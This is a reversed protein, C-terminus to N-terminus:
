AKKRVVFVWPLLGGAETRRMTVTSIHPANKLTANLLRYEMTYLVACGNDTLLTPLMRAFGRYLTENNEHTGVRNGFPMNSVILDFPERATFRLIDKQIFKARMHAADANGRAAAIADSAIDVGLLARPSLRKEAEFLLTGSGCFPDLVSPREACLTQALKVICAATAPKVSAALARKRYDFRTDPLMPKVFVDCLAGRCVVRLEAAYASPNDGGGCADALARIWAARNGAYGILEIRYPVNLLPGAATAVAEAAFPLDLAVPLLLETFCRARFLPQLAQTHVMAGTPAPTHPIQLEALERCLMDSFGDPAVLLADHPASLAFAPLPAGAQMAARAKKLAEAIEGCHKVQTEDAPVPPEYAMLTRKGADGGVHGLALILSPIVFLTEERELAATLAAADPAHQLAGILRAANKRVKPDAADLASLLAARDGLLADLRERGAKTKAEATWASLTAAATDARLADRADAATDTM